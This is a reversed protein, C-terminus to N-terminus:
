KHFPTFNGCLFFIWRKCRDCMISKLHSHFYACLWNSSSEQKWVTITLEFWHRNYTVYFVDWVFETQRRFKILKSTFKCVALNKPSNETHGFIFLIDMVKWVRHMRGSSRSFALRFNILWDIWIAHNIIFYSHSHKFQIRDLCKWVDSYFWYLYIKM